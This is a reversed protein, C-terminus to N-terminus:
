GSGYAVEPDSSRKNKERDRLLNCICFGTIFGAIFGIVLYTQNSLEIDM